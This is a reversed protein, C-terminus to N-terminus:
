ILFHIISNVCVQHFEHSDLKDQYFEHVLTSNQTLHKSREEVWIVHSITLKSIYKKISDLNLLINM